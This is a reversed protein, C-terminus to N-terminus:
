FILLCAVPCVTLSETNNVSQWGTKWNQQQLVTVSYNEPLSLESLIFYIFSVVATYWFQFGGMPSSTSAGFQYQQSAQDMTPALNKDEEETGFYREIIDFAKQYIERNEHSQLFEIKDLGVSEFIYM